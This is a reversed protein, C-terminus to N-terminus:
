IREDLAHAIVLNEKDSLYQKINDLEDFMFLNKMARAAALKMDHSGLRVISVLFSEDAESGMTGIAEIVAKRGGSRLKPYKFKLEELADSYQLRTLCRIASERLENDHEDMLALIAPASELQNYRGVLKTLFIKVTLNDTDFWESFNPISLRELSKLRELIRIQQWETIPQDLTKLFELGSPGAISICAYQAEMRLVKNKSNTLALIKDYAPKVKFQALQNIYECQRYWKGKGLQSIAYTDFGIDKYFHNLAIEAEGMMTQHTERLVKILVKRNLPKLRKFALINIIKDYHPTGKAHDEDFLIQAILEEYKEQLRAGKRERKNKISRIIMIYCFFIFSVFLFLSLMGIVIQYSFDM